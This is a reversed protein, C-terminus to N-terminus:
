KRCFTSQIASWWTYSEDSESDGTMGTKLEKRIKKTESKWMELPNKIRDWQHPNETPEGLYNKLFNLGEEYTNVFTNCINKESEEKLIKKIIKKM